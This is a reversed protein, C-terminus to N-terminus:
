LPKNSMLYFIVLLAAFEPTRLALWWRYCRHYAAPLDTGSAAAEQALKRMRVQLWLVPVWIVGTASYIVISARLWFWASPYGAIVAMAAGTVPQLIVATLTLCADAMVAQRSVAAIVRVDGSRQARVWFFVIALSTGFLVSSSVVHLWRLAWYLATM